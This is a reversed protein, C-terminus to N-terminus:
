VFRILTELMDKVNQHDPDDTSDLGNLQDQLTARIIGLGEDQDELLSKIKSKAGDDEAVLWALIIDIAQLSFLGADLRQSLWEGEMIAQDETGLAKREQSIKEDVASVRSHYDRRLRVLREIKEYDKEVFKALTRIRAPSEGPLLRLLSAFIGLLHEMFASEQKKMFIGFITRLGAAEVFHECAQVGEHGGIAHNLVRLARPKSLKGERLMILALEIGEAEVFKIKGEAEDVLCTLSDFLNEFYEEEDSDKEPDFKRYISLLQLLTETGDREIFRLRNKPSAQLLIALIEAAYQKNQSIRTEKKSIRNQLWQITNADQGIKEANSAQSALSELVSLIHYVGARDAENNEDLRSLNQALLEIIDSDLMANAVADWQKQEVEVDEDILEGLIEIADIAIDTNEHTLLSVLSGVCGLAAFDEYLEPHESLISLSKIDVDLDAESAVFKQPDGEFKVRLEANKSIRKEFNLATKRLWAIDLKQPAVEGQEYQDVFKLADSTDKSVGGGFFRGEEDDPIDEEFDPPLEPGAEEDDDVDEITVSRSGKADGTADLKAAKYIETPDRAPDIRRKSSSSYSPKKFIDDVSAM